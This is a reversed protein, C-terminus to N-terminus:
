SGVSISKVLKFMRSIRLLRLLKQVGLAKALSASLTYTCLIDFLSTCVLLFDFKNWPSKWYPAWGQGAPLGPLPPLAAVHNPRLAPLTGSWSGSRTMWGLWAADGLRKVRWFQQVGQVGGGNPLSQDRPLQGGFVKVLMELLFVASFALNLYEQVDLLQEPAKYYTTAM